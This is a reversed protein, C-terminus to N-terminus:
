NSLYKSPTKVQRASWLVTEMRKQRESADDVINTDATAVNALDLDVPLNICEVGLRHGGELVNEERPFWELSKADMQREDKENYPGM